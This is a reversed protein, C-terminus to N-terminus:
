EAKILRVKLESRLYADSLIELPKTQPESETRPFNHFITNQVQKFCLLKFLKKQM